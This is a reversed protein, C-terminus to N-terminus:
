HQINEFDNVNNGLATVLLKAAVPILEADFNCRVRTEEDIVLTYEEEPKSASWRPISENNPDGTFAFKMVTDFIQKELKETIGEMWTVPVLDTNHFVYPIDSCHWPTRGGDVPMDLNFLYSWTKRNMKSRIRIYEQTPLRFIFDLMLLDVPNRKPYAKTYLPLLKNAAEEGLVQKVVEIGEKATIKHKDYKTPAFSTFEGYVSGVLLPIHSTESRFGYVCPDGKYFNNIYPTGGVYKGAKMLTPKVKKYAEMLAKCPVTELEKVDAIGMESMLAAVLDRGDGQSDPLLQGLVGSMVIGKAYLGDAEPTQLLTTVKGGGGSQGFLTVNEPDGGFLAINEHVWKLAAIIDDTGANGSDAYEEGFPSLDCYGLVNLRHNVSVVVVQGLRCMNEGEYAVQEISSGAEYGGGHLWVMVPRKKIDCSPTWVNLNQCEESMPWYRHPVLLEGNPKPDDLLPCVYGYNTADLVGEWPEVLQPAHFRKAKAYPIGKFISIHDFVYGRVKGQKTEVMAVDSKYEFIHEM